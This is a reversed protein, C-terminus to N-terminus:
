KRVPGRAVMHSGWVGCDHDFSKSLLELGTGGTKPIHLFNLKREPPGKKLVGRRELARLADYEAKLYGRLSSRASPSLLSADALYDHIHPVTSNSEPFLRAYRPWERELDDARFAWKVKDVVPALRRRAPGARSIADRFAGVRSGLARALDDCAQLETLLESTLCDGLWRQIPDAVWAAMNSSPRLTADSAPLAQLVEDFFSAGVADYVDVDYVSSLSHLRFFATSPLVQLRLGGKCGDISSSAYFGAVCDVLTIAHLGDTYMPVPRSRNLDCRRWNNLAKDESPGLGFDSAIEEFRVIPLCDKPQLYRRPDANSLCTRHLAVTSYLPCRATLPKGKEHDFTSKATWDVVLQANALTVLAALRRWPM